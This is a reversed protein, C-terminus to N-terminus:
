YPNQPNFEELIEVENVSCEIYGWKNWNNILWDRDIGTVWGEPISEKPLQCYKLGAKYGSCVILICGGDEKYFFDECVLFDITDEYPFSGKCRLRMGRPIFSEPYETLKIKKIM